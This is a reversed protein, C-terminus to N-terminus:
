ISEDVFVKLSITRQKALLNFPKLASNFLRFNNPIKYYKKIFMNMTLYFPILIIFLAYVFKYM